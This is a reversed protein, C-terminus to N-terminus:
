PVRFVRLQAALLGYYGILTTLEFLLDDGLLDAAVAYAADDLDGDELLARTTTLVVAETADDLVPDSGARLAALDAATLGVQAGVAEHARREFGCDWHAAVALIAIERCRATLRGSYRLAAGLRQLADGVPPNLLMANFPGVLSGDGGALGFAQPGTSRSGSTITDYLERQDDDLEAPTLPRLRMADMM